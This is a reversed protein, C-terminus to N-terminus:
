GLSGESRRIPAVASASPIARTVFSREIRFQLCILVIQYFERPSLASSWFGWGQLSRSSGAGTLAFDNLARAVRGRSLLTTSLWQMLYRNNIKGMRVMDDVLDTLQKLELTMGRNLHEYIEHISVGNTKHGKLYDMIRKDIEKKQNTTWEM